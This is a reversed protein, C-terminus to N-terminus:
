ALVGSALPVSITPLWSILVVAAALTVAAFRATLTQMM